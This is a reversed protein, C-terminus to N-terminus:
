VIAEGIAIKVELDKKRVELLGIEGEIIGIETLYGAQKLAIMKDLGWFSAGVIDMGIGDLSVSMGEKYKTAAVSKSKIANLDALVTKTKKNATSFDRESNEVTKRFASLSDYEEEIDKIKKKKKKIKEKVEKLEDKLYGM